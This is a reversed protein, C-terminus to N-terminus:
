PDEAEAPPAMWLGAELLEELLELRKLCALDDYYYEMLLRTEEPDDKKVEKIGIDLISYDIKSCVKIGMRSGDEEEVDYYCFLSSERLADAPPPPSEQLAPAPPQPSSEQPSPAGLAESNEPHHASRAPFGGPPMFKSFTIPKSFFSFYCDENDNSSNFLRKNPWSSVHLRDLYEM